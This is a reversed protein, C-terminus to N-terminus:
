HYENTASGSERTAIRIRTELASQAGQGSFTGTVPAAHRALAGAAIAVHADTVALGHTPDYGRWGGGCLYVEPWAHLYRQTRSPDGRQYGSVFRAALGVARCAAVFLVTLDRCAGARQALTREPPLPDGQERVGRSFEHFMRQNLLDLFAQTESGAAGALSAAFARVSADIGARRCYPVLYPQLDEGYNVPLARTGPVPLFDFANSRLTEVELRVMVELTRAAGVFCLETVTNGALDQYEAQLVPQPDVDLAFKVLRQAGDCRPRVRLVQPGLLVPVSYSYRTLHEITFLM